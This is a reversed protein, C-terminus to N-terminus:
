LSLLEGTAGDFFMVAGSSTDTAGYKKRMMRLMTDAKGKWHELVADLGKSFKPGLDKPVCALFRSRKRGTEPEVSITRNPKDTPAPELLAAPKACPICKALPNCGAM